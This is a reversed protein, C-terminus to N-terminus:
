RILLLELPCISRHLIQAYNIVAAYCDDDCLFLEPFAQEITRPDLLFAPAPVAASQNPHINDGPYGGLMLIWTWTELAGFVVKAASDDPERAFSFQVYRNRSTRDPMEYDVVFPTPKHPGPYALRRLDIPASVLGATVAPSIANVTISDLLRARLMNTLVRFAGRDINRLRVRWTQEKHALDVEKGQLEAGSQWPPTSSETFMGLRAANIFSQIPDPLPRENKPPGGKTNGEFHAVDEGKVAIVIDQEYWDLVTFDLVPEVPTPGGGVSM